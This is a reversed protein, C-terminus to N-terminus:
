YPYSEEDPQLLTTCSQDATQSPNELNRVQYLPLVSAQPALHRPIGFCALFASCFPAQIYDAEMLTLPFFSLDSQGWPFGIWTCFSLDAITRSYFLTLFCTLLTPLRLVKTAHFFVGAEQTVSLSSTSLFSPPLQSPLFSEVCKISFTSIHQCRKWISFSTIVAFTATVILSTATFAVAPVCACCLLPSHHCEQRTSIRFIRDAKNQVQHKYEIHSQKGLHPTWPPPITLLGTKVLWFIVLNKSINCFYFMPKGPKVRCYLQYIWCFFM